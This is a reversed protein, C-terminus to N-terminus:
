SNRARIEGIIANRLQILEEGGVGHKRIIWALFSDCNVRAARGSEGNTVVHGIACERSFVGKHLFREGFVQNTARVLEVQRAWEYPDDNSPTISRPPLVPPGGAPSGEDLSRSPESAAVEENRTRLTVDPVGSGADAVAPPGAESNYTGNVYPTAGGHAKDRIFPQTLDITRGNPTLLARAKVIGYPTTSVANRWGSGSPMGPRWADYSKDQLFGIALSESVAREVALSVSEPEAEDWVLGVFQKGIQELAARDIWGVSRFEERAYGFPLSVLQHNPVQGLLSALLSLAQRLQPRANHQAHGILWAVQRLESLWAPTVAPSGAPIRCIQILLENSLIWPEHIVSSAICNQGGSKAPLPAQLEKLM